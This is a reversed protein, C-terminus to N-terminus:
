YLVIQHVEVWGEKQGELRILLWDDRTERLTFETGEPLPSAFAPEYSQGNGKRAELEDVVVVGRVVRDFRHWDYAASFAFVATVALAALAVWMWVRRPPLWLGIVAVVFSLIALAAVMVFKEHYGVWNQWFFVYELLPRRPTVTDSQVAYKLNALLYPDRPRYRSADRYAAIARGRQGARMYANGLNYLVAGSVVGQQDRISEYVAAAKLYDEPSQAGDFEDQARQFDAAVEISVRRGCGVCVLLMPLLCAIWIGTRPTRKRLTVGARLALSPLVNTGRERKPSINSAGKHTIKQARIRVFGAVKAVPRM